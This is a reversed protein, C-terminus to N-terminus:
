YRYPRECKAHAPQREQTKMMFRRRFFCKKYTLIRRVKISYVHEGNRLAAAMAILTADFVNGDKLGRIIICAFDM